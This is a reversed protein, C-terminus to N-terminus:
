AVVFTHDEVVVSSHDAAAVSSHDGAAVSSQDEVITHRVLEAAVIKKRIAVKVLEGALKKLGHAVAM